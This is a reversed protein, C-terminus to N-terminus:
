RALFEHEKGRVVLVPCPAHRVVREAVSGLLVHNLGSYGHTGVIILDIEMEKACLVIEHHPTGTRLVPTAFLDGSEKTKGWNALHTKANSLLIENPEQLTVVGYGYDASYALPEIAHMLVIMANFQRAFATAYDLAKRSHESFDTPVMISKIRFSTGPQPSSEPSDKKSSTSQNKDRATATKTKM